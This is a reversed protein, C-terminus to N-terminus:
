TNLSYGSGKMRKTLFIRHNVIDFAQNVIDFAQSLDIPLGM